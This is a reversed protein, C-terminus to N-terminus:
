LNARWQRLKPSSVTVKHCALNLGALIFATNTLGAFVALQIVCGVLQIQSQLM